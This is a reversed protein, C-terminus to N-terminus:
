RLSELLNNLTFIDSILVERPKSGHQASVIGAAELQDMIRGARNFGIEFQRQIKSASGQQTEVVMTAVQDFLPDRKDLSITRSEDSEEVPAEPLQYAGSYGPQLSIEDVIQQTEPTDVLACQLRLMDKGQYFLMDGRGVLHNAGPADLITKSDVASFVKFAIRAPFNAKITGTIIDTTPRQTALVMHIGAARAKQAIRAIPKEVEKGSTMILDAFEDVILVIYPLRAHGDATSLEGKDFLSNYEAINRVRADSLLKYRNDMEICLSNLTPVVKNMDTIICSGEEPLKALYHHGLAEYISFELMKPDIMVFKLESPHKSYLLSTIMVNLGVSKGQGTAGAILLHPMKALDFMFVENTITKGIAVPLHMNNEVFKRSTLLSYLAVTQPRKNPVEIGITGKGPIPAIIRIGGESKLSRAIDDELSRIKSIKIGADPEIEYLTVAPGVTAKTPRAKIKFSELTDIIQRENESIEEMDPMVAERDYRELLDLSPFTYGPLDHTGNGSAQREQLASEDGVEDGQAVEITMGSSLQSPLSEPTTDGGGRPTLSAEEDDVLSQAFRSGEIPNRDDEEEEDPQEDTDLPFSDGPDEDNPEEGLSTETEDEEGLTQPDADVDKKKRKTKAEAMTRVKGVISARCLVLVIVFSVVLISIIGISGVHAGLAAIIQEGSAGGLAFPLHLSVISELYACFLSVWLAMSTSFLLSKLPSIRSWGLIFRFAITLIFIPLFLSGLGLFGDILGDAIRAGLLGTCNRISETADAGVVLEAADQTSHLVSQDQEITFFYHVMAVSVYLTVLLLLTGIIFDVSSRPVSISKVDEVVGKRKRAFWTDGSPKKGKSNQGKTGRSTKRSLSPKHQKKNQSNM